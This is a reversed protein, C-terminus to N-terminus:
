RVGKGLVDGLFSELDSKGHTLMNRVKALTEEGRELTERLLRTAGTDLGGAAEAPVQGLRPWIAEVRMTFDNVAETLDLLADGEALHRLTPNGATIRQIGDNRARWDEIQASAVERRVNPDRRVAERFAQPQALAVEGLVSPLVAQVDARTLVSQALRVADATPMAELALAGQEVARGASFESTPKRGDFAQLARYHNTTIGQQECHAQFAAMVGFRDPRNALDRYCTWPIEATRTLGWAQCVRVYTLMNSPNEMEIAEAYELIKARADGHAAPDAYAYAIGLDGLKWQRNLVEKVVQRGEAILQARKDHVLELEKRGCALLPM